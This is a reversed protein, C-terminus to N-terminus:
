TPAVFLDGQLPTKIDALLQQVPSDDVKITKNTSLLELAYVLAELEYGSPTGLFQIPSFRGDCELLVRVGLSGPTLTPKVTLGLDPRITEILDVTALFLPHRPSPYYLHIISPQPLHELRSKLGDLTRIM